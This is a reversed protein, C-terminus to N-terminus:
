LRREGGIPGGATRDRDMRFPRGAMTSAPTGVANRAGVGSIRRVCLYRRGCHRLHSTKAFAKSASEPNLGIYYGMAWITHFTAFIFSGAAAGYGFWTGNSPNATNM